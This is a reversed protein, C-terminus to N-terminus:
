WDYLIQEQKAKEIECLDYATLNNLISNSDM